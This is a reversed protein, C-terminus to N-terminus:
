MDIILMIYYVWGPFSMGPFGTLNGPMGIIMHTLEEPMLLSDAILTRM